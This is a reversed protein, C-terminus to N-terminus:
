KYYKPTEPRYSPGSYYKPAESYYSPAVYPTTY